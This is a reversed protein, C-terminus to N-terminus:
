RVPEGAEDGDGPCALGALEGDDGPATAATLLLALPDDARVSGAAADDLLQEAAERDIHRPQSTNM